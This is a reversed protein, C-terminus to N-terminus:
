TLKGSPVWMLIMTVDGLSWLFDGVSMQEHGLGGSPRVTRIAPLNHRAGNFFRQWSFNPHHTFMAPFDVWIPTKIPFDHFIWRLKISSKGMFEFSKLKPISKGALWPWSYRLTHRMFCGLNLISRKLTNKEIFSGPRKPSSSSSSPTPRWFWAFENPQSWGNRFKRFM